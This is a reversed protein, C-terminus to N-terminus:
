NLKNRHLVYGYFVISLDSPRHVTPDSNGKMYHTQTLNRQAFHSYYGTNGFREPIDLHKFLYQKCHEETKQKNGHFLWLTCTRNANRLDFEADRSGAQWVLSLHTAVLELVSCSSIRFACLALVDEASLSSDLCTKRCSSLLPVWYSKMESCDCISQM